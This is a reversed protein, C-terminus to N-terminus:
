CFRILSCSARINVSFHHAGSVRAIAKLCKPPDKALHDTPFSVRGFDKTKFIAANVKRSENVSATSFIGITNEMVALREVLDGTAVFLPRSTFIEYLVCGVAFADVGYSWNLGLHAIDTM